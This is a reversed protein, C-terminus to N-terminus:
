EQGKQISQAVSQQIGQAADRTQRMRANLLGGVATLVVMFLTGIVATDHGTAALYVVGAIAGLAVVAGCVILAIMVQPNAMLAQWEQRTPLTIM